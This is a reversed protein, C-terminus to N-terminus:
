LRGSHRVQETGHPEPELRQRICEDGAHRLAIMAAQAILGHLRRIGQRLQRPRRRLEGLLARKRGRLSPLGDAQDLGYQSGSWRRTTGSGVRSGFGNRSCVDEVSDVQM